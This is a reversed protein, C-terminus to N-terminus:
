KEDWKNTFWTALQIYIRVWKKHTLYKVSCACASLFLVLIRRHSFIFMYDLSEFSCICVGSAYKELVSVNHYISANLFTTWAWQIGWIRWVLQRFVLLLPMVHARSPFKTQLMELRKWFMWFQLRCKCVELYNM